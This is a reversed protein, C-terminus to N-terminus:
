ALGPADSRLDAYTVGEREARLNVYWVTTMGAVAAAVMGQVMVGFVYAAGVAVGPSGVVLLPVAVLQVIQIAFGSILGVLLVFGVTPWWRGRVLEFSRRIGEVSRVKEIAIVPALMTISGGIWVGPLILLVLGVVILLGAIVYAVLMTPMRKLALRVAQAPTLPEEALASAVLRHTVLGIFSYVITQIIIMVGLGALVPSVLDWFEETTMLDLSEPDNFVVDFFELAGTSGLVVVSIFGFLLSAGLAPTLMSRWTKMLMELGFTLVDSFGRAPIDM